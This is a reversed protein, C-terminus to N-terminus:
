FFVLFGLLLNQSVLPGDHVFYYFYTFYGFVSDGNMFFGKEFIIKFFILFLLTIPLLFLTIKAFKNM